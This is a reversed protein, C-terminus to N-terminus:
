QLPVGARIRDAHACGMCRKGGPVGHRHGRDIRPAPRRHQPPIPDATRTAEWWGTCTLVRDVDNWSMELGAPASQAVEAIRRNVEGAWGHRYGLPELVPVVLGELKGAM